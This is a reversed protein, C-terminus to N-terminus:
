DYRPRQIATCSTISTVHTTARLFLGHVLGTALRLVAIVPGSVKAARRCQLTRHEAQSGHAFGLISHNALWDLFHVFLFYEGYEGFGGILVSCQHCLYVCAKAMNLWSDSIVFMVNYKHKRNWSYNLKQKSIMKIYYMDYLQRTFCEM